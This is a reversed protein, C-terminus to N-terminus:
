VNVGKQSPSAKRPNEAPILLASVRPGIADLPVTEKAAGLEIAARPMGYVVCSSAHEAITHAGARFMALLGDAGDRGMGTLLVGLAQPGFTQAASTFLEDVAPRHSLGAPEDSLETVFHDDAGAIRLHQGAPAILVTGPELPVGHSAERVTLPLNRDLREAFAATFGAPMHQVVLVPVPCHDVLADLLQEIAGPGGTSAGIVLVEFASRTAVPTPKAPPPAPEVRAAPPADPDHSPVLSRIKTVLVSRLGQFDVLSHAEKDIFDAAGRSLAELTMPAGEGSHTSLIIVPTPRVAMLRDLTALGGMGPMALDLTLVDPAWDALHDLLEEGTRAVGVIDIDSEDALLRVLAQRVFPSDDVVAVRIRKM